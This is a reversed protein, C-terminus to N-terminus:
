KKRIVTSELDDPSLRLDAQFGYAAEVGDTRGVEGQITIVGQGFLEVHAGVVVITSLGAIRAPM